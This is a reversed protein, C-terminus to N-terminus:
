VRPAFVSSLRRLQGDETLRTTEDWLDQETM